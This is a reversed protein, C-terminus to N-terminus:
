QDRRFPLHNSAAKGYAATHDREQNLYHEIAEAFDADAIWHFSCTKIPEFGRVLKHEGQTGPNFVHLNHEIAFDIGQYYCAEFHLCDVEKLAGWYRGYLTNDDFFFLSSAIVHDEEYAFVIMIQDSLTNAIDEFFSRNLYGGHGSRKMYTAQYCQYFARWDQEDLQDGTKRVLHVGQEAVRRRERRLQKRKASRLSQLFGDFDSYDRNLWHFQVDERRSLTSQTDLLEALKPDPFLVHWSSAQEAQATNQLSTLIQTTLTVDITKTSLLRPGDAPTFPIATLLKPYYRRGHQQFANAWQWDFVYEGYSHDKKYLPMFVVVRDDEEGILHYPQWGTGEGVCGSQELASLFPKSLFPYRSRQLTGWTTEDIDTISQIHRFTIM